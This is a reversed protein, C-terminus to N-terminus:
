NEDVRLIKFKSKKQFYGRKKLNFWALALFVVVEIVIFFNNKSILIRALYEGKGLKEILGTKKPESIRGSFDYVWATYCYKKESLVNKDEVENGNGRYVEQGDRYSKPCDGEKKILVISETESLAVRPWSIKISRLGAEASIEQLESASTFFVFSLVFFIAVVGTVLIKKIINIKM